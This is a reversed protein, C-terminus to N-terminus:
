LDQPFELYSRFEPEPQEQINRALKHLVTCFLVQMFLPNNRPIVREVEDSLLEVQTNIREELQRQHKAHVKAVRQIEGRGAINKLVSLLDSDLHQNM